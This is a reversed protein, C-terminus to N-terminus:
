RSKGEKEQQESSWKRSYAECREALPCFDGEEKEFWDHSLCHGSGFSLENSPAVMRGYWRSRYMGCLAFKPVQQLQNFHFVAVKEILARVGTETELLYGDINELMFVKDNMKIGENFYRVLGTKQDLHCHGTSGHTLETRFKRLPLFWTDWADSLLSRIEGPFGTGYEQKKAREFLKGNSGNQVGQVKRYAGFLFTRLGDLASYLTAIIAECVAAYEESNLDDSGGYKELEERDHVLNPRLRAVIRGYVIARNLHRECDRLGIRVNSDDPLPPGAFIRLKRLATWRDPTFQLLFVNRSAAM